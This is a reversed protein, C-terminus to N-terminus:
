ESLLASVNELKRCVSKQCVHCTIRVYADRLIKPRTGKRAQAAKRMSFEVECVPNLEGHDACTFAFVRETGVMITDKWEFM